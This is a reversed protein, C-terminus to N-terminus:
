PQTDYPGQRLYLISDLGSLCGQEAGVWGWISLGVGPGHHVKHTGRPELNFAVVKSSKRGRFTGVRLGGGHAGRKWTLAGSDFKRM